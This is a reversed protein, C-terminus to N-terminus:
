IYLLVLLMSKLIDMVFSCTTDDNPGIVGRRRLNAKTSLRDWLLRWAHAIVKLPAFNRWILKFGKLQEESLAFSRNRNLLFLYTEKTSFCGSRSARWRWSDDVDEQINFRHESAGGAAGRNRRRFSSLNRRVEWQSLSTLSPSRAVVLSFKLHRRNETSKSDESNSRFFSHILDM